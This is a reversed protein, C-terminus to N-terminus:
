HHRRVEGDHHGHQGHHDRDHDRDHRFHHFNGVFLSGGFWFPPRYFWPDYAWYRYPYDYPYGYPYGAMPYPPPYAPPPIIYTQTPLGPTQQTVLWSGDPQLCAHGTALVSNGDVTVPISYDRCAPQGGPPAGPPGQQAQPPQPSGQPPEGAPPAQPPPQTGVVYVQSPLGPTEQTIQWTGDPQQCAHAVAQVTKGDIVVPVTNDQCQPGGGPPGAGPAGGTIAQPQQVPQVTEGPATQPLVPQVTGGCPQSTGPGCAAQVGGRIVQPTSASDSPQQALAPAVSLLLALGARVAFEAPIAFRSM